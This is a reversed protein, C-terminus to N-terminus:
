FPPAIILGTHFKMSACIVFGFLRAVRSRELRRLALSLAFPRRRRALAYDSKRRNSLAVTGM